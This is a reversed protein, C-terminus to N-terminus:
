EELDGEAVESIVSVRNKLSPAVCLNFGCGNQNRLGCIGCDRLKKVDKVFAFEDMWGVVFFLKGSCDRTYAKANEMKCDFFFM